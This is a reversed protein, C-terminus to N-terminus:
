SAAGGGGSQFAKYAAAQALMREEEDLELPVDIGYKELLEKLKICKDANHQASRRHTEVDRQQQDVKVQLNRLQVEIGDRAMAKRKEEALAERLMANQAVLEADAKPAVAKGEVDAAHEQMFDVLCSLLPSRVFTLSSRNVGLFGAMAVATVGTGRLERRLAADRDEMALAAAVVEKLPRLQEPTMANPNFPPLALHKGTKAYYEEEKGRMARDAGSLFRLVLPMVRRDEGPVGSDAVATVEGDESGEEVDGNCAMGMAAEVIASLRDLAEGSFVEADEPHEIFWDELYKRTTEENM